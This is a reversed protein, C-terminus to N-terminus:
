KIEEIKIIPHFFYYHVRKGGKTLIDPRLEGNNHNLEWGHIYGEKTYIAGVGKVPYFTEPDNELTIRIHTGKPYPEKISALYEKDLTNIKEYIADLDRELAKRKLSYEQATM